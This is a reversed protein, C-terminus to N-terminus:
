LLGDNKMKAEIEELSMSSNPMIFNACKGFKESTQFRKCEKFRKSDCCYNKRYIDASEARKLLNDNFLLCKPSKPCIAEM